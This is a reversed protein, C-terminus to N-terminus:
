FFIYSPNITQDLIMSDTWIRVVKIKLIIEFLAGSREVVFPLAGRKEVVKSLATKKVGV